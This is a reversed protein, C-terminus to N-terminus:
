QIPMKEFDILVLDPDEYIVRLAGQLFEIVIDRDCADIADENVPSYWALRREGRVICTCTLAVAPM